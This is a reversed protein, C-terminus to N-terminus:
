FLMRVAIRHCLLKETIAIKKPLFTWKRLFNIVDRLRNSRQWLGLITQNSKTKKATSFAYPNCFKKKKSM